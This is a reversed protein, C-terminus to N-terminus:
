SHELQSAERTRVGAPRGEIILRERHTPIDSIALEGRRLRGGDMQGHFRPQNRAWGMMEQTSQWYGDIVGDLYLAAIGPPHVAAIASLLAVTDFPFRRRRFWGRIALYGAIFPGCLIAFLVAGLASLGFGIQQLRYRWCRTRACTGCYGSNTVVTIELIMASCSRCQKRTASM